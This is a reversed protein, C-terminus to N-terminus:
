TGLRDHLMGGKKGPIPLPKTGGNISLIKKLKPDRKKRARQVGKGRKLAREWIVPDNKLLTMIEGRTLVILCKPLEITIYDRM